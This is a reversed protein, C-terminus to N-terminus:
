EVLPPVLSFLRLYENGQGQSVYSKTVTLLLLFGCNGSLVM